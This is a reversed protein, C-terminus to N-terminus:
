IHSPPGYDYDFMEVEDAPVNGPLLHIHLKKRTQKGTIEKYFLLVQGNVPSASFIMKKLLGFLSFGQISIIVHTNTKKLPQILEVNDGTFHAVVLEAQNGGQVIECHPLHLHSISGGFCDINYLPGAPKMQGLGDLLRADWSDIRYLVEGESEMEFVLNTLSCQFQAAHPSLFRYSSSNKVKSSMVEPIFVETDASPQHGTDSTGLLLIESHCSIECTAVLSKQDRRVKREVKKQKM